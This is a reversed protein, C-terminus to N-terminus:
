QGPGRHVPLGRRHAPDTVASQTRDDNLIKGGNSFIWASYYWGGITPYASGFQTVRDGDRKTLAQALQAYTDWTWNGEQYYEMPTKQGAEKFLDENYFTVYTNLDKPLGYQKGNYQFFELGVKYFDNIDVDPDSKILDDLALLSDNTAYQRLPESMFTVDPASGGAFMTTVKDWYEAPAIHIIEVDINPLDAASQEIVKQMTEYEAAGGPYTLQLKVKEAPAPAATAAPAAGAQEAPAAPAAPAPTVCSTVLLSIFLLFVLPVVTKRYRVQTTM